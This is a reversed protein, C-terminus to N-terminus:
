HAAARRRVWRVLAGILPLRAYFQAGSDWHDLHVAVRGEPTFHVESVGTIEWPEGPGLRKPRFYFRWKLFAEAGERVSGDIAFRVDTCDRYAAAFIALMADTGRVDNFPDRFHVDPTVLDRLQPLTEPSLDAYFALYRKLGEAIPDFTQNM